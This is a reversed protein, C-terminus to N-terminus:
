VDIMVEQMKLGARDRCSRYPRGPFQPEVGCVLPWKRYRVADLGTLRSGFLVTSTEVPTCRHNRSFLWEGGYVASAIFTHLHAEM